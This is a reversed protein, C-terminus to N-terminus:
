GKTEEKDVAEIAPNWTIDAMTLVQCGEIHLDLIKHESAYKYATEKSDFVRHTFAMTQNDNNFLVFVKM